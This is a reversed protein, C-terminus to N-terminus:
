AGKGTSHSEIDLTDVAVYAAGDLTDREVLLLITVQYGAGSPVRAEIRHFFDFSRDAAGALIVSKADARNKERVEKQAPSAPPPPAGQGGSRELDFVNTKGAAHVVLIARASGQLSVFGRIDQSLHTAHSKNDLPLDLTALRTVTPIGGRGGVGAQLNRYLITLARKDQSINSVIQVADVLDTTGHFTSLTTTAGPIEPKTASSM